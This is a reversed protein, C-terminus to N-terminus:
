FGGETGVQVGCAVDHGACGVRSCEWGGGAVRFVAAAAGGAALAFSGGDGRLVAALAGATGARPLSALLRGRPSYRSIGSAADVVLAGGLPAVAAGYTRAAPWLYSINAPTTPATTPPPPPRSVHLTNDPSLAVGAHSLSSALRGKCARKHSLVWHARLHDANCYFSAGCGSCAKMTTAAHETERTLCYECVNGSKPAKGVAAAAGSAERTRIMGALATSCMALLPAETTQCLLDAVSVSQELVASRSLISGSGGPVRWQIPDTSLWVASAWVISSLASFACPSALFRCCEDGFVVQYGALGHSLEACHRLASWLWARPGCRRFFRRRREEEGDGGRLGHNLLRLHAFLGAATRTAALLMTPDPAESVNADDGAGHKRTSGQEARGETDCVREAMAYDHPSGDEEEEVVESIGDIEYVEGTIHSASYCLAQVTAYDDFVQASFEADWLCCAYLVDMLRIREAETVHEDYLRMSIFSVAWIGLSAIALTGATADESLGPAGLGVVHQLYVAVLSGLGREYDPSDAGPLHGKLDSENWLRMVSKLWVKDATATRLASRADASLRAEEGLLFSMLTLAYSMTDECVDGQRARVDLIELLLPIADVVAAMVLLLRQADSTEASGQLAGVLDVVAMVAFRPEDSDTLSVMTRIPAAEDADAIRRALILGDEVSSLRLHLAYVRASREDLTEDRETVDLAALWRDLHFPADASLVM